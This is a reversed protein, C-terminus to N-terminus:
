QTIVRVTELILHDDHFNGAGDLVPLREGTTADYLGIELVYEGPPADAQLTVTYHDAVVEGVAWGTTPYAGQRPVGDQQGWLRNGTALNYAEGLLHVFVKYSQEMQEQAQWYLTVELAEGPRLTLPEGSAAPQKSLDYGLFLVQNGLNDQRPHTIIALPTEGQRQVVSVSALRLWSDGTGLRLALSYRGSPVTSLIPLAYEGRVVHDPQWERPPYGPKVPQTVQHVAQGPADLLAIALRRRGTTAPGRWYLALRVAEGTWFERVPLDFGLLTLGGPLTATMPHEIALNQPPVIRLSRPTQSYLALRKDGLSINAERQYHAALWKEVLGQPDRALADPIVVLWLASHQAAIPALLADVSGANLDARYPVGYWPLERQEYYAFVPWDADTHLLVADGPQAYAQVIGVLSQYDDRLHREAFYDPLPAILGGLVFLLAAAALIPWRRHLVDVGWALVLLFAPLLIILYRAEVTAAYFFTEQPLSLLYILLPPVALCLWLLLSGERQERRGRWLPLLGIAAVLLFGLVPLTYREVHTTIGLSLVTAYVRLFLLFSLPPPSVWTITRQSILYMWPLGLAVLALQATVWGLLLRRREGRERGPLPAPPSPSLVRDAFGASAAGVGGMNGPMPARGAPKQIPMLLVILVLLNEGLVILLTLYHTYIAAATVVVYAVFLWLNGGRLLRLTLYLSAVALAVALTYMRIEQSWWVDFRAVALFIAALLGVQKNAALRGLQYVLPVALTGLLVSSFRVAFASEGALLDWGRVLWYHLPPHVDAATRWAIWAWDHRGLWVTWGEDWWVNQDALKYLRLAFALLTIGLLALRIGRTPWAQLRSFASV